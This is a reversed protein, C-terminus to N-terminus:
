GTQQLSRARPSWFLGAQARMSAMLEVDNSLACGFGLGRCGSALVGALLTCRCAQDGLVHKGGLQQRAEAQARRLGQALAAPGEFREDLGMGCVQLHAAAGAGTVM